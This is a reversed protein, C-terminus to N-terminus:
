GPKRLDALTSQLGAEIEGSMIKRGIARAAGGAFGEVQPTYTRNTYFFISKEGSPAVGATVQLADFTHGVYFDRQAFLVIGDGEMLLRHSLTAAPRGNLDRVVWVFDHEVEPAGGRPYERLARYFMMMDRRVLPREPTADALDAAPDDEPGDRVYPEIGALGRERYANVRRALISRYGYMAEARRRADPAEFNREAIEALLRVEGASLNFSEAPEDGALEELEEEPLELKAFTEADAPGPEIRGFALITPDIELFRMSRTRAIADKPSISLQSAATIALKREGEEDLSKIVAEGAELRRLDDEDYGLNEVIRRILSASDVDAEGAAGVPTALPFTM